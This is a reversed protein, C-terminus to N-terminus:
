YKDTEKKLESEYKGHTINICRRVVASAPESFYKKLEDLKKTEQSQLSSTIRSKTKM